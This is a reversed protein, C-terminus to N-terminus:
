PPASLTNLAIAPDGAVAGLDAVLQGRLVANGNSLPDVYSLDLGTRLGLAGPKAGAVYGPPPNILLQM